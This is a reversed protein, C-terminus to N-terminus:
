RFERKNKGLIRVAWLSLLAPVLLIEPQNQLGPHDFAPKLEPFYYPHLAGLTGILIIVWLFTVSVTRAIRSLRWISIALFFWLGAFLSWLILYEERRRLEMASAVGALLYLLALITVVFKLSAKYM